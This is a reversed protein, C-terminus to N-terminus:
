IPVSQTTECSPFGSATAATGFKNDSAVLLILQRPNRAALCDSFLLFCALFVPLSAAALIYSLPPRM